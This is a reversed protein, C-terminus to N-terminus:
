TDDTMREADREHPMRDHGCTPPLPCDPRVQPPQTGRLNRLNRLHALFFKIICFVFYLSIIRFVVLLIAMILAPSSTFWRRYIGTLHFVGNKEKKNDM